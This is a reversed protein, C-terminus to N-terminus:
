FNLLALSRQSFTATGALVRYKATITYVGPSVNLRLFNGFKKTSAGATQVSLSYNDNAPLIGGAVEIAMYNQTNTANSVEASYFLFAFADVQAVIQPGVTALDTYTTSTTTQATGIFSDIPRRAAISNNGTSVFYTGVTTAKAPMTELLNDRVNANFQAATFATGDVATMPATWAM